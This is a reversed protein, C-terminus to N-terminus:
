RRSLGTDQAPSSSPSMAPFPAGEHRLFGEQTDIDQPCILPPAPFPSASVGVGLCPSVSVRLSRSAPVRPGRPCPSAAISEADFIM